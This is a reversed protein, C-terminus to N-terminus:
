QAVCSGPFVYNELWCVDSPGWHIPEQSPIGNLGGPVGYFFMAGSSYPDNPPQPFGSGSFFSYVYNDNSECAIPTPRNRDHTNGLGCDMYPLGQWKNSKINTVQEYQHGVEHAIGNGIGIAMAKMMNAFTIVDAPPYSPTYDVWTPEPYGAGVRGFAEQAGEMYAFYYVGSHTTALFREGAKTFPLDGLVYVTYNQDDASGTQTAINVQVGFPAYAKKVAKMAEGIIMRVWEPHDSSFDKLAGAGCPKSCTSTDDPYYAWRVDRGGGLVCPSNSEYGQLFLGTGCWFVGISRHVIAMGNPSSSGGPQAFSSITNVPVTPLLISSFLGSALGNWDGQWSYSLGQGSGSLSTANGLNDIRSVTDTASQDTIKIALGNGPTVTSISISSQTPAPFNWNTAGNNINFATVNIGYSAFATGSEGLALPLPVPLGDVGNVAVTPAMPLPYTTIGGSTVHAAQYPQTAAPPQATNITWTAVIGGSGDPILGCPFLNANNSSSVQTANSSGDLAIKLLWLISSVNIGPYPIERVEYEVYISGDSDVIPQGITSPFYSPQGSSDTSFSDPISPAPLQQGSAGDILLLDPFTNSPATIVVAGDQRVAMKPAGVPCGKGGGNAPAVTGGWVLGGSLGDVDVVSLPNVSDCAQTALFGGFTDPVVNGILRPLETQWLQQGESTFAQILTQTGDNSKLVSYVNPGFTTPVAQVIQSASFGTVPPASWLVTGPQFVTLSSITVAVNTSVGQVTATLTVTGPSLATLTPFSETTISALNTHDVTWTADYRPRHQDDQAVFQKTGGILLKVATPTIQLSTPAPLAAVSFGSIAPSANVGGVSVNIQGSAAAGMPVPVVIATDSWSSPTAAAGNITVTSQGLAAGLNKGLILIPTGVAATMPIARTLSADPIGNISVAASAVGNVTIQIPQSGVTTVCDILVIQSSSWSSVDGAPIPSGNCTLVSSGQTAGFNKGTITVNAFVAIPNPSLGTIQPQATFLVGDSAANSITVVVPGSTAAAPVTTTISTSTWSTVTATAGNFTVRNTGQSTGFGTGTIVVKDGTNGSNPSVSSISLSSNVTFNVGNSATGGVTVVVNGTTAGTPVLATILSDSWSTATATTGNFKVTSSGQSAGFGAGTIAVSAGIGGSAPSLSTIGPGTTVTFTSGNSTGNGVTVLVPGTTAGAPVPVKILGTAWSTPSALVGNFTIVSAGQTSGFNSGNVNVILGVPGTSPSLSSIAPSPVVTFKVGNSATGGVTVVVNGTTATAPVTATIATDTWNTATATVGNFTITSTGQTAGFSTGSITVSGNVVGTSPSLSAIHLPLVVTFPLTNSPNFNIDQLSFNQVGAGIGSPVKCTLVTNTWSSCTVSFTGMSVLGPVTGLNTGNVTFTSGPNGTSPSLSSLVPGPLVTFAQGNSAAGGVTVVVNGSTASAPPHTVIQTSSWSQPSAVVGNFTVTSTGQILGFGIGNITVLNGVVASTPNLNNIVPATVTFPVGASAVGAVTVVVNGTTATGPVTAVVSTNSWSSASALVGNFSVTSSGQTTGFGSGNITVVSNAQGANPSLSSIVPNSSVTFAFAPTAVGNVTVVVNGSTFSGPPNVTIFTPQWLSPTVAIGGFTVTSSGQPSNFPGGNIQVSSGLIGPNPSISTISPTVTFNVTNSEATGSSGNYIVGVPGTAACAPVVTTITTTTSSVINAWCSLGLWDVFGVYVSNNMNLGTLTISNGIVGSSTSLSTLSPSATYTVGNSSIGMVKVVVSGTTVGTPVPVVISSGSWSTPTATIGNFTVTSTGQTAGFGSGTITIPTVPGSNPTIASIVPAPIVAFYVGTGTVGSATVNVNGSTASSPVTVVIQTASWSVVSATANNFTVTSTGQTAGFNTGNITVTMGTLGSSPNLTTINPSGPTVFNLGNSPVGSVTVVVPGSTAAVPVSVAISTDSWSSVSASTGNFTITSTGQTAGFAAGTITVPTGSPGLTPFLSFISPVNTVTFSIPNSAVGGVTVAVNGTTAGTPITATINTGSWNTITLAAGNLTATSTGQTDGFNSGFIQLTSGIDGATSSLSSIYPTPLVTFEVLNSGTGGVNVVFNGTVENPVIAVISNPAWSKIQAPSLNLFVTSEGQIVGFGSGAITVSTGVPGVNPTLNVIEPDPAVVTVATSGCITGACASVTASGTALSNISGYNGSDSSVAVIANNSSSWAASALVKTSNDAFTGTAILNQGTELPITPNAPTLSVSVLNAPTLSPPEYLEASTLARPSDNFGGAVLVKGNALLTATQAQRATNLNGTSSFIGAAPDYLESSALMDVASGFGGEVLVTGNSLLTAAQNGRATNLSGTTTFLATAPNYIEASALTNFSADNGGVILVNGGNLLTATHQLRGTNLNGTATFVGTGPNYLEASALAGTASAGGVILVTGDNLVTATQSGRSTILTGTAIFGNISPIFIEATNTTNGNSDRSGAILVTGDHLLTASHNARAVNLDGAESFTGSTPDYVEASTLLAATSDFGGTILVTGNDLLTATFNTRATNLNGTATFTGTSVNYIEASALAVSNIDYGGVILVTGNNLLTATHGNRGTVLSGTLAFGPVFLATSGTVTGVTAQISTMGTSVATALGASNITAVGTVTSVWTASSTLNQTSSDSYTGTATFQQTGGVSIASNAPTVSISSLTKVTFSSGSSAVGSVTVVVNGTTAGSPVPAAITTANWSTPTATTGNFKVTSTGQTAGFNTGTITISTGVTASSPSLSTITPTPLVTFSTGNSDVGSAHVVVNGTTAGSPVTAIISSANWSTATATTGNFKVTSTGQTAGFNSGAITVSSGVGGSTPTLSTISPTALVTFSKGNSATGSVTVIVNGTTAGSPVTAVISSASWSTATATTGNFSVTSTGQTTGFNSGAITISAGVAGSTPSLSSITPAAVAQSAGFFLLFLILSIGLKLTNWRMSVGM